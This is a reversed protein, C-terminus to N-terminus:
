DKRGLYIDSDRFHWKLLCIEYNFKPMLPSFFVRLLCYFLLEDWLALSKILDAKALPYLSSTWSLSVSLTERKDWVSFELAEGQVVFATSLSSQPYPPIRTHATSLWTQSKAVRPTQWAGRNVPNELCSYQLPCGNLKELPDEQSLSQVWTKQM